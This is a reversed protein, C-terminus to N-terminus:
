LKNITVVSKSGKYEKFLMYHEEDIKIVSNITAFIRDPYVVSDMYQFSKDFLLLFPDITKNKQFDLNMLNIYDHNGWDNKGKDLM